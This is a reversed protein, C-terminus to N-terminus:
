DSNRDLSLCVCMCVGCHMRVTPSLFTVQCQLHIFKSYPGPPQLDHRNMKCWGVPFIERSDFACWYDFTGKWGDFSVHIQDAAVEKVTAPCILEPNKKDTAELTHGVKFYNRVPCEPKQLM